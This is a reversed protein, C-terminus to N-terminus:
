RIDYLIRVCVSQKPDRVPAINQVKGLQVYYRGTDEDMLWRIMLPPSM